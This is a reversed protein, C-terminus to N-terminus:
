AVMISLSFQILSSSASPQFPLKVTAVAVGKDIAAALGSGYHRVTGALASCAKLRLRATPIPARRRARRKSYM